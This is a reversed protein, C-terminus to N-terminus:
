GAKRVLFHHYEEGVAEDILRFGAEQYWTRVQDIKPYYHYGGEQAWEGFNGTEYAWEGYVTPLGARQADAFARAIEEESTTEVTFYWYTHPRLARHFRALVLPWEEPPVMELADVCIAGDFADVYDMEQMGVKASPISRHKELARALMERSQDIGFVTRGSALILPWYKGTGCPADLIHAGPPCLELFKAVFRHYLPDIDGWLEDYIPAYITDEQLETV